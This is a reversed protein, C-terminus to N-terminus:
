AAIPSRTTRRLSRLSLRWRLREWRTLAERISLEIAQSSAVAEDAITPARTTAGFTMATASAALRRLEHPASVVYPEASEAIRADTWAVGITLGADVLSDTTNAWAGVIRRAPDAHRLRRRRRVGKITLIGAIVIVFPLLIVGGGLSVRVAWSRISGWTSSGGEIDVEDTPDDTARDAPPPIPPQAAAPTQEEPPPPPPEVESSQEAPTPDFALWGLDELRVEPWVAAHSSRLELPARLEDPPVVFGTAVRADFGLARALLVFATVFQEETGRRTESVFREMLALQLGGPANRDLSWGRLTQEIATLQELLTDEGAIANAAEGFSASLTDVQRTALRASTANDIRPAVDSTVHVTRGASPTEGLRVVTREADTQVGQASGSDVEVPQGPLPVLDFDDTLLEVDFAIPAAQDPSAPRPLGLRTGIPRLTVSPVWRQGDYDTLAAIRWRTPLSRGILRSRDTIRFAAFVPDADRFAIMEEIPDLVTATVDADDTRRPDARNSWAVATSSVAGAIM